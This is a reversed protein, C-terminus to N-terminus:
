TSQLHLLTNSFVRFISHHLFVIGSIYWSLAVSSIGHWLSLCDVIITHDCTASMDLLILATVKGNDM